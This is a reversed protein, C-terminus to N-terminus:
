RAAGEIASRATRKAEIEPLGAAQAAAVVIATAEARGLTGGDVMERLRRGGWYARSNREGETANVMFRILRGISSDDPVRPPASAADPRRPRPATLWSPWPAPPRHLLRRYGHAGWLVVYGGDARIDVGEVRFLRVTSRLDPAHRYFWHQGGSRTEVVMTEPLRARHEELWALASAHKATDLDLVSLGSPKGTPMGVLVAARRAFSQALRDPDRTATHFGGKDLPKKDAKLAFVPAHRAVSLAIDLTNM